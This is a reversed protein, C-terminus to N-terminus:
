HKKSLIIAGLPYIWYLEEIKEWNAGENSSSYVGWKGSLFLRNKFPSMSYFEYHGPGWTPQWEQALANPVILSSLLLYFIWNKM